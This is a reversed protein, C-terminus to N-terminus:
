KSSLTGLGKVIGSLAFSLEIMDMNSSPDNCKFQRCAEQARAYTDPYLEKNKELFALVAFVFGRNTYRNDRDAYLKDAAREVSNTRANLSFEYTAAAVGLAVLLLYFAHFSRKHPERITLIVGIITAVGGIIGFAYNAYELVSTGEAQARGRGAGIIATRKCRDSFAHLDGLM